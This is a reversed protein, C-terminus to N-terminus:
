EDENLEKYKNILKHGKLTCVGYLFHEDLSLQVEIINFKDPPYINPNFAMEVQEMRLRALIKVNVDHRVLGDKKGKELSVEVMKQVFNTKFDRLLKWTKPYFKQLEYFLQPNVKGFIEAMRKMMEFVEEVVNNANDYISKFACEHGQVDCQMLRHVIEEKEKFYQYITKKSMGLNKAIDDMTVSRIGYKYFLEQAGLLIKEEPTM